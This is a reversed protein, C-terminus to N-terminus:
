KNVSFTVSGTTQVVVVFVRVELVVVLVVVMPMGVVVVVICGRSHLPSQSMLPCGHNTFHPQATQAAQACHALTTRGVGSSTGESSKFKLKRLVLVVVIFAEASPAGEMDVSVDVVVRCSSLPLGDPTTTVVVSYEPVVMSKPASILV